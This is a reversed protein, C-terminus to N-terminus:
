FLSWSTTQISLVVLYFTVESLQQLAGLVDGTYGGIKKHIYRRFILFVIAIVSISVIAVEIPLWLLPTIGVLIAFIFGGISDRMGIPKAKSALDERVYHSTYLLVVPVVRSITHGAILTLIITEPELATLSFYKTSLMFLLGVSGYTGIRSDKMITLVKERTYGGGFGDCFDAFGDEHFAGTLYVSFAMSLLLAVNVPLVQMFLWFMGASLAGVLLGIVPFYRTAQSLMTDQYGKINGVPIRTYFMLSTRFIDFQKRM